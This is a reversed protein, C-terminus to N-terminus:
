KIKEHHDYEPYAYRSTGKVYHIRYVSGDSFVVDQTSTNEDIKTSPYQKKGQLVPGGKKNDIYIKILVNRDSVVQIAKEIAEEFSKCKAPYYDTYGEEYYLYFNDFYNEIVDATKLINYLEAFINAPTQQLLEAPTDILERNEEIFQKVQQTM